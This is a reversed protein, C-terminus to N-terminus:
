STKCKKCMLQGICNVADFSEFVSGIRRKVLYKLLFFYVNSDIVARYNWRYHKNTRDIKQLLIGFYRFMEYKLVDPTIPLETPLFSVCTAVNIQSTNGMKAVSINADSKYLKCNCISPINKINTKDVQDIYWECDKYFGCAYLVSIFKLRGALDNYTLLINLTRLLLFNRVSHQFAMASINAALCANIYYVSLSLSHKTDQVTHESITDIHRIQNLKLWLLGIFRIINGNAEYFCNGLISHNFVDLASNIITLNLTYLVQKCKKDHKDRLQTFSTFYIEKSIVYEFLRNM